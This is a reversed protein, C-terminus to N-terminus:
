RCPPPNLWVDREGHGQVWRARTAPTPNWICFAPSAYLVPNAVVDEYSPIRVVTQRANRRRAAVREAPCHHPDATRWRCAPGPQRWSWRTLIPIRISAVPCTSRARIWKRGNKARSGAVRCWSFRAACPRPNAGLREGANARHAIEVLAREANGYLLIDAKSYILASQRVKTAGTTTTPSAACSAEISGIMVDVRRPLGRPLAAFVGGHRSGPTQRRGRRSTYADDSRTKEATYRNIMSDMHRRHRRLVATAAGARPFPKPRCGTRSASSASAFAQSELLRGVLAMGFSPHDLYADGTVLIIDVAFGPCFKRYVM